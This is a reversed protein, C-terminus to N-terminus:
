REIAQHLREVIERLETVQIETAVGVSEYDARHRLKQIEVLFRTERTWEDGM